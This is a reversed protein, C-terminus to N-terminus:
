MLRRTFLRPVFTKKSKRGSIIQLSYYFTTWQSSFKVIDLYINLIKDHNSRSENLVFIKHLGFRRKYLVTNESM